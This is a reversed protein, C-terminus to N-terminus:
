IKFSVSVKTRPMHPDLAHVALVSGVRNLSELLHCQMVTPVGGNSFGLLGSKSNTLLQRRLEIVVSSGALGKQLFSGTGVRNVWSKLYASQGLTGCWRGVSGNQPWVQVVAVGPPFGVDLGFCFAWPPPCWPTCSWGPSKLFWAWESWNRM